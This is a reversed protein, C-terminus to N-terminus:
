RELSGFVENRDPFPTEQEGVPLRCTVHSIQALGIEQINIEIKDLRSNIFGGHICSIQGKNSINFSCHRV